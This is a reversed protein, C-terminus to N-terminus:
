QYAAASRAYSPRASPPMLRTKRITSPEAKTFIPQHLIWRPHRSFVIPLRHRRRLVPGFLSFPKRIHRGYLERETQRLFSGVDEIFEAFTDTSNRCAGSSNRELPGLCFSCRQWGLTGHCFSAASQYGQTYRCMACWKGANDCTGGAKQNYPHHKWRIWMWFTDYPTLFACDTSKAFFLFSIRIPDHRSFAGVPKEFYRHEGHCYELM